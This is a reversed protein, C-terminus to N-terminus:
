VNDMKGQLQNVVVVQHGGAVANVDRELLDVRLIQLIGDLPLRVTELGPDLELIAVLSALVFPEEGLESELGM